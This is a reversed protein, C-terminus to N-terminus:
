SRRDDVSQLQNSLEERQAKLAKLERASMPTSITFTGAGPADRVVVVPKGPPVPAQPPQRTQMAM